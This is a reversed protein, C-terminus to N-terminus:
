GAAERPGGARPRLAAVLARLLEGARARIGTGRTLVFAIQEGGLHGLELSWYLLARADAFGVSRAERLLKWGFHYFALCGEDSLRDYHYEPKELHEVSGDGAIRARVLHDDRDPLFPVTLLMAGGPRLVRLCEGLARRYSPVHELVDLSVVIDFRRDPFTLRTLDECRIGRDDNEGPAVGFLLESGVTDPYRADIWPFLPGTRETLYIASAAGAGMEQQFLHITARMRNNLHCRHCTLHERWNPMLVGDVQYAFRHDVAFDADRRCGVCFGPVTFPRDHDAALRRELAAREQRVTESAALHRRYAARSRVVVTPLM